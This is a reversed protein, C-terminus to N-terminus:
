SAKPEIPGSAVIAAAIASSENIVYPKSDDALGGPGSPDLLLLRYEEEHEFTRSKVFAISLWIAMADRDATYSFRQEVEWSRDKEGYEVKRGVLRLASVDPSKSIEGELALRLKLLDYTVFAGPKKNPDTEHDRLRQGRELSFEGISSCSCYDNVVTEMVLQKETNSISTNIIEIGELRANEFFNSRSNFIEQVRSEQHDGLRGSIAGEKARYKVLSGFQFYGARASSLFREEFHRTIYQPQEMEVKLITDDTLLPARHRIVRVIGNGCGSIICDKITIGKSQRQSSRRALHTREPASVLATTSLFRSVGKGM